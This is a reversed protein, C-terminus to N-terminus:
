SKPICRYGPRQLASTSVNYITIAILIVIYIPSLPPHPKEIHALVRNTLVKPGDRQFPVNQKRNNGFLHSLCDRQWISSIGELAVILVIGVLFALSCAHWRSTSVDATARSPCSRGRIKYYHQIPMALGHTKFTVHKLSALAPDRPRPDLMDPIHSRDM